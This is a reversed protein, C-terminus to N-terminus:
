GTEALARVIDHRGVIGILKGDKVVPLQRYDNQEMIRAAEAMTTDAEVCRVPSSMAERVSNPALRRLEHMADFIHHEEALMRDLLHTLRGKENARALDLFDRETVIGEPKGDADVVVAYASDREALTRVADRVSTDPAVTLVEHSM